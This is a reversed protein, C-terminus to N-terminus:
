HKPQSSTAQSNSLHKKAAAANAVFEDAAAIVTTKSPRSTYISIFIDNVRRLFHLSIWIYKQNKNGGGGGCVCVWM